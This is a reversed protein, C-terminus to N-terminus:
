GILFPGLVLMAVDTVILDYKFYIMQERILPKQDVFINSILPYM